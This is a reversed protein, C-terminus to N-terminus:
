QHLPRVEVGDTLQISAKSVEGDLFFGIRITLVDYMMGKAPPDAVLWAQSAEVCGLM